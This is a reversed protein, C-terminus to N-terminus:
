SHVPSSLGQLTLPRSIYSPLYEPLHEKQQQVLALPPQLGLCVTSNGRGDLHCVFVAVGSPTQVHLLVLLLLLARALQIDSVVQM